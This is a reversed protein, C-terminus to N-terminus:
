DRLAFAVKLDSPFRIFDSRELRPRNWPGSIPGRLSIGGMSGEHDIEGVRPVKFGARCALIFLILTSFSRMSRPPRVDTLDEATRRVVDPVMRRHGFTECGLVM